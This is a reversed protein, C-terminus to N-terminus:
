RGLGMIAALLPDNGTPLKGAKIAKRLRDKAWSRRAADENNTRWRRCVVKNALPLPRPADEGPGFGIIPTMPGRDGNRAWGTIRVLEAKRLAKIAHNAAYVSWRFRAAATHKSFKEGAELARWLLIRTPSLLFFDPITM